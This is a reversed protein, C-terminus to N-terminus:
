LNLNIVPVRARKRLEPVFALRRDRELEMERLKDSKAIVSMNENRLLRDRRKRWNDLYRELARVQGKVGVVGKMNSRYASLEDFRQQKKLANMTNVAKDVEGRLEYFQQQLGGAKDTDMILRNVVPLQRALDVNSPLLPQGTATRTISDTASLVYGGLTGTYGRIVHEIKAPSINLAEGLAKALSNTGERAQYGAERKLQYYPVIEQGTFSNRNTVAEVIPKLAQIGIDGGIFPVNASTGLQRQTSTLFEDFSAQSFADDGLTLDFVREPIAKFLMGVEFPIPIKIAYDFPTPVVWNDDRVERKLNRYEDTDSVLLYYLLTLGTLFSGNIMARRFIRGQVDKLTEGEQLKELASYQQSVFSRYLVDLGQIRANLFPIASTIVRFMPDLGRRGFNIIELSQYAAESQAQAETYGQDKLKKYVSEYVALRTAGDSKTTLEGLGDWLKFFADKANMGNNPTLGQRRMTRNIFEKVEGEDNAFDYGGIVGFQEIQEMDRFM